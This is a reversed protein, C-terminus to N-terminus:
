KSFDMGVRVPTRAAVSVVRKREGLQPHRWVIEHSGIPISLNGIPTPGAPKGDIIIEAWPLANVSVSGNPIAVSATATKGPEIEVRLPARFELDANAVELDHRGAPLMFRPTSSTAILQGAEFIQLDIPAKITAWGGATGANTITAM